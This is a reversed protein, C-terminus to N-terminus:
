HPIHYDKIDVQVPPLFTVTQSANSGDLVSHKLLGCPMIESTLSSSSSTYLSSCSSSCLNLVEPDKTLDVFKAVLKDDMGVTLNLVSKNDYVSASVM